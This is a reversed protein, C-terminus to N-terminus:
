LLHRPAHLSGREGWRQEYRDNPKCCTRLATAMAETAGLTLTVDDSSWDYRYHRAYYDSVAQRSDPRGMPPSYQNLEDRARTDSTGKCSSQILEILNDETSQQNGSSSASSQGSIVAHALALRMELPPAENPFGQSLNVAGHEIALRTMLRITSESIATGLQTSAATAPMMAVFLVLSPLFADAFRWSDRAAELADGTEM